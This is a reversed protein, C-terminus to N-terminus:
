KGIGEMYNVADKLTEGVDSIIQNKDPRNIDSKTISMVPMEQVVLTATFVDDDLPEKSCQFDVISVYKYNWNDWTKMKLITGYRWMAELSNKNFMPVETIDSLLSEVNVASSLGFDFILGKVVDIMINPVTGNVFYPSDTLMFSTIDVNESGLASGIPLCFNSAPILISLRYQKPKRIINDAVVNMLGTNKNMDNEEDSDYFLMAKTSVESNMIEDQKTVSFFSIPLTVNESVNVNWNPDFLFTMSNLQRLKEKGYRISTIFKILNGNTRLEDFKSM